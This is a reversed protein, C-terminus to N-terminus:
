LCFLQKGAQWGLLFFPSCPVYFFITQISIVVFPFSFQLGFCFSDYVIPITAQLPNWAIDVLHRQRRLMRLNKHISIPIKKIQWKANSHFTMLIFNMFMKKKKVIRVSQPQITTQAPTREKKRCGEYNVM